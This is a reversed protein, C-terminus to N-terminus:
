TEENRPGLRSIYSSLEMVPESGGADLHICSESQAGYCRLPRRLRKMWGLLGLAIPKTAIVAFHAADLFDRGAAATSRIAFERRFSSRALSCTYAPVDGIENSPICIDCHCKHSSSFLGGVNMFHMFLIALLAMSLM